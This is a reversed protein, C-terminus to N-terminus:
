SGPMPVRRQYTKLEVRFTGFTGSVDIALPVRRDDTSLWVRATPNPEASEAEDLRADLQLAAQTRGEAAVSSMAIAHLVLTLAHGVNNVPLSLRSSPEVGVLRAQYFAGLPDRVGAVWPFEVTDTVAEPPGSAVMLRRRRGDFTMTRTVHRRGEHLEQVHTIPALDPGTLSWFRDRAEFFASIWAATTVTLEFRFGPRASGPRSAGQEVRFVADGAPLNMGGGGSWLVQYRLEEGIEFPLPRPAPEPPTADRPAPAPGTAPRASLDSPPALPMTAGPAAPATVPDPPPAPVESRQAIAPTARVPPPSAVLLRWAVFGGMVAVSAITAAVSLRAGRTM